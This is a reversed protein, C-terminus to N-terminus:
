ESVNQGEYECGSDCSCLDSDGSTNNPKTPQPPSIMSKQKVFLFVQERHVRGAPLANELTCVSSLYCMHPNVRYWEASVCKPDATCKEVCEKANKFQNPKGAFYHSRHPCRKFTAVRYGTFNFSHILVKQQCKGFRWTCPLKQQTECESQGFQACEDNYYSYKSNYYSHSEDKPTTTERKAKLLHFHEFPM